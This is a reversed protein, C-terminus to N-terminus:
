LDAIMQSYPLDVFGLEKYLSIAKKNDRETELRLRKIEVQRHSKLFSFFEHGLGRRRYQPMIYLEDIWLVMGGAEQSYTKALLAYGATKNEYEMIYGAVYNGSSMMEDFADAFHSEPKNCYVAKSRYFDKVMDLYDSRDERSIKRVV